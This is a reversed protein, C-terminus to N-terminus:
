LCIHAAKHTSLVLDSDEALAAVARLHQAIQKQVWINSTKKSM